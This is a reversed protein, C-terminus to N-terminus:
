PTDIFRRKLMSLEMLSLWFIGIIPLLLFYYVLDPKMLILHRFCFILLLICVAVVGGYGPFRRSKGPSPKGFIKNSVEGALSKRLPETKYYKRIAEDLNIYKGNGM